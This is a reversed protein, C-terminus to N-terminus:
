LGGHHRWQFVPLSKEGDVVGSLLSMYKGLLIAVCLGFLCYLIRPLPSTMGSLKGWEWAAVMLVAAVFIAFWISPMFILSILFVAFICLATVIRTKLM